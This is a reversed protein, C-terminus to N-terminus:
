NPAVYSETVCLTPNVFPDTVLFAALRDDLFGELQPDIKEIGGVDVGISRTLLDESVTQFVRRIPILNDDGGLHM